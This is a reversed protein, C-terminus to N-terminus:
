DFTKLEWSLLERLRPDETRWAHYVTYILYALDKGGAVYDGTVRAHYHKDPGGDRFEVDWDADVEEDADPDQDGVYDLHMQFYFQDAPERDLREVVAFPWRANLDAFLDHVETDTPDDLTRGSADAARFRPANM